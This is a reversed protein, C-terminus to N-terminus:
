ASRKLQEHRPLRLQRVFLTLKLRFDHPRLPEAHTLLRPRRLRVRRRMESRRSLAELSKLQQKRRELVHRQRDPMRTASQRLQLLMDVPQWHLRKPRQM